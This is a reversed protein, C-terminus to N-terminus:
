KNNIHERAFLAINRLTDYVPTLDKDAIFASYDFCIWFDVADGLNHYALMSLGDIEFYMRSDPSDLWEFFSCKLLADKQQAQSSKSSIKM